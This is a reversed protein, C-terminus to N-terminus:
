KQAAIQDTSAMREIFTTLNSIKQKLYLDRINEPLKDRLMEIQFLAVGMVPNTIQLIKARDQLAERLSRVDNLSVANKGYLTYWGQTFLEHAEKASAEAGASIFLEQEIFLKYDEVKMKKYIEINHEIVKPPTKAYMYKIMWAKTDQDEKLHLFNKAKLAADLAVHNIYSMDDPSLKMSNEDIDVLTKMFVTTLLSKREGTTKKYEEYFAETLEKQHTTDSLKQDKLINNALTHSILVRAYFHVNDQPLSKKSDMLDGFAEVWYAKTYDQATETIKAAPIAM